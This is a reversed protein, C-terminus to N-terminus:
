NMCGMEVTWPYALTHGKESTRVTQGPAHCYPCGNFGNFQVINQFLCRAPSDFVGNLLVGRVTLGDVQLGAFLCFMQLAADTIMCIPLM